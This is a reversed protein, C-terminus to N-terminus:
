FKFVKGEFSIDVNKKGKVIFAPYLRNYNEAMIPNTPRCFM